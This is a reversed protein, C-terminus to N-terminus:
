NGSIAEFIEDSTQGNYDKNEYYMKFICNLMTGNLLRKHMPGGQCFDWQDCDICDGNKKWDFNRFRHYRNQWVDFIDDTRVNGEIFDRSINSCSAISGDYLIGLLNVGAICHWIYPRVKGELEVGLWGGCALEVQTQSKDDIFKLREEKVFNILYKYDDPALFYDKAKSGRGIPDFPAFRWRDPNIDRVIEKLVELEAINKRSIVTTITSHIKDKLPAVLKITKIANAYNGKMNRFSDHTEELGDLNTGLGMVGIDLLKDLAEPHTALFNGNTQITIPNFGLSNIESLVEILDKRVFPEGGTLSFFKFESFDIKEALRQFVDIIEKTTLEKDPEWTERPSGCHVCTLDCNRTVEWYIM